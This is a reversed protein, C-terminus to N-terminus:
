PPLVTIHFTKIAYNGALNTATCTVTTTGISFKSGSPPNCFIAPTSINDGASFSYTVPAGSPSRATITFDSPVVITPPTSDYNISISGSGVNGAKDICHGIITISYGDPGIYTSPPDCSQTGSGSDTGTWTIRVPKNYFGNSDPRRDPTGIVIPPTTDRIIVSFTTQVSNGAKDTAFCTVKSSGIPFVSGSVPNCQVPVPGYIPDKATPMAYNVRTGSPSTAEAIINSNSSIDPAATDVVTVVFSGVTTLGASDKASCKIITQGIKFKSGSDPNCSPNITGDLFDYATANYFFTAGNIDEATITQNSSLYLTPPFDVKWTSVLTPGQNGLDDIARVSFIHLGAQLGKLQIPSTCSSLPANDLSCEFTSPAKSALFAFNVSNGTFISNPGSSINVTPGSTDITWGQTAPTPDINGFADVAQVQFTHPGDSLGNFIAPNTCPALPSNDLSCKFTSDPKTSTFGFEAFGSNITGSPGSLITTHPPITDRVTITVDDSSQLQSDDATLRLIYVGPTSFTVNTKVTDRSSFAVEGPGNLKLWSVTLKGGVPLGDDSVKGSLIVSNTPFSITQASGANVVPPSNCANAAIPNGSTTGYSVLTGGCNILQGYNSIIANANNVIQGRNNITNGIGNDITGYNNIINFNDIIGTIRNGLSHGQAITIIGNNVLDGFNNMDARITLSGGKAITIYGTLTFDVDLTVHDNQGILIRDHSSPSKGAGWNNRDSWSIGDGNGTWGEFIGILSTQPLAISAQNPIQQVPSSNSFNVIGNAILYQIGKVFEDDSIQGNAWWGAYNKIWQPIQQQGGVVSQTSPIKIFGSKILYQIGKVFEDDNVAGQSWWRATNKIWGPIQLDAFTYVPM